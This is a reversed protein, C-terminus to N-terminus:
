AMRAIGAGQRSRSHSHERALGNFHEVLPSLHSGRRWVLGIDVTPLPEGIVCAELRDGELSWPRYAIDPLVSIGVGSAVLSRVAEVSSTRLVVNPQLGVDRWLNQTRSAMEDANLIILPESAIDALAVQEREALEHNASVWVQNTSRKLTEAELAEINTLSSSILIGVDVEGNILLHEIYPREDEIVRVSVNPFVRRHRAMLDALYYGAVMSTVGITIQGRVEDTRARVANRADVVTALIRKAHIVFQHGEYTPEMGKANRVFLTEGLYDELGQIATSVASQSVGINKAAGSVSLNEAVALFYRVQRLSINM